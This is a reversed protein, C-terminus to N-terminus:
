KGDEQSPPTPEALFANSIWASVRGLVEGADFPTLDQIFSGEALCRYGWENPQAMAYALEACENRLAILRERAMGAGVPETPKAKETALAALRDVIPRGLFGGRAIHRAHDAERYAAAMARWHGVTIIEGGVGDADLMLKDDPISDPTGADQWDAIFPKLSDVLRELAEGVSLPANELNPM